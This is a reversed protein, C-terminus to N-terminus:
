QVVLASKLCIYKGYWLFFINFKSSINRVKQFVGVVISYRYLHTLAEEFHAPELPLSSNITLCTLFNLQAYKAAVNLREITGGAPHLWLAGSEVNKPRFYIKGM